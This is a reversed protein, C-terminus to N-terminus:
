FNQPLPTMSSTVTYSVIEKLIKQGNSWILDVENAKSYDDNNM